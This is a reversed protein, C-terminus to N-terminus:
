LIEEFLYMGDEHRGKCMFERFEIGPGTDSYKGTYCRAVPMRVKDYIMAYEIDIIRTCGCATKLKAKM